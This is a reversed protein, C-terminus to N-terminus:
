CEAPGTEAEEFNTAFLAALQGIAEDEGDGDAELTLVTGQNASLTLLDFVEKADVRQQGNVLHIRCPFTRALQAIQSLPRLHLGDDLVVTM